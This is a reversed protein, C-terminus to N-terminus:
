VLAKKSVDKMVRMLNGGWILKIQEKTYGRKLLEVTINKLQSTDKCDKLGGGGDFGTGIGVHEVGILQMIHDIHDVADAVTALEGQYKTEMAEYEQHVKGREAETMSEYDKYKERLAKLAKDREPNPAAAKVYDSLICMQIVGGNKALAKLMDDTLNRPNDCIARSCSHSAIVPAKTLSLVDYFSRDSIHSVDVMMGLRNMERVVQKGFDSLGLGQTVDTSSTCVDNNSTHCLTIYRAGKDYFYKVNKIDNALAYGNEIGIFVAIKNEKKIRYADSPNLALGCLSPHRKTISNVSDIIRDVRNFARKNGELNRKGQGVFAALFVGDLRGTRMRPIDVCSRTYSESNDKTFDFGKYTFNLPTDTHSDVSFIENHIEEAILSLDKQSSSSSARNGFNKSSVCSTLIFVSILFSLTPIKYM